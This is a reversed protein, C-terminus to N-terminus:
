SPFESSARGPSQSVAFVQQLPHEGSVDDSEMSEVVGPINKDNGM